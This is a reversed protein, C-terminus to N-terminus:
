RHEHKPLYHWGLGRTIRAHTDARPVPRDSTGPAGWAMGCRLRATAIRRPRHRGNALGSARVPDPPFASGALVSNVGREEPHGKVRTGILLVAQRAIRHVLVAERALSTAGKPGEPHAGVNNPWALPNRNRRSIRLSPCNAEIVTFARRWLPHCDSWM